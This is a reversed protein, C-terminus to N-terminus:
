AFPNGVVKHYAIQELKECTIKKAKVTGVVQGRVDAASNYFVAVYQFVECDTHQESYNHNKVQDVAESFAQEVNDLSNVKKFEFSHIQPPEIGTIKVVLDARGGAVQEERITTIKDPNSSSGKDLAILIFDRIYNENVTEMYSSSCYLLVGDFFKKIRDLNLVQPDDGKGNPLATVDAKRLIPKSADLDLWSLICSKFLDNLAAGIELNPICLHESDMWTLYGARYLFSAGFDVCQEDTYLHPSQNVKHLNSEQPHNHLLDNLLGVLKWRVEYSKTSMLKMKHEFFSNVFSGSEVWSNTFIETDHNYHGKKGEHYMMFNLVSWPNYVREHDDSNSCFDYGDYYRKIQALLLALSSQNAALVPWTQQNNASQAIPLYRLSLSQAVYALHLFYSTYVELSTFGVLSGYESKESLDVFVNFGSFLGVERFKSIGTIFVFEFLSVLSKILRFLQQYLSMIGKLQESDALFANAPADYEDILLVYPRARDYCRKLLLSIVEIFDSDSIVSQQALSRAYELLKHHKEEFQAQALDNGAGDTLSNVFIRILDSKLKLEPEAIDKTLISSWDMRVVHCAPMNQAAAELATDVFLDSQGSYLCSLTELLVSKGFRRPRSLFLVSGKKIFQEILVSKDVYIYNGERITRFSSSVTVDKIDQWAEVKTCTYEHLVQYVDGVTTLDDYLKQPVVLGANNLLVAFADSADYNWVTEASVVPWDFCSVDLEPYVLPTVAEYFFSPKNVLSLRLACLHLQLSSKEWAQILDYLQFATACCELYEDKSWLAGRAFKAPLQELLSARNLGSVSSSIDTNDNVESGTIVELATYLEEKRM